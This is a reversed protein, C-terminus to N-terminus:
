FLAGLVPHRRRWRDRAGFTDALGIVAGLTGATLAVGYVTRSGASGYTTTKPDISLVVVNTLLAVLPLAAFIAARKYERVWLHAVAPAIVLGSMAVFTGTRRLGDDNGSAYLVSGALLPVIAMAAATGVAAGVPPPEQEDAAAVRAGGVAVALVLALGVRLM